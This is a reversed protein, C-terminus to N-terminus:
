EKKEAKTGVKVATWYALFDRHPAHTMGELTGDERLKAMTQYEGQGDSTAFAFRLAGWNANLHSSYINSFYFTGTLSDGKVSSIIMEQFYAESEPTPRLDIKWTGVLDENSQAVLNIPSALFLLLLVSLLNRM